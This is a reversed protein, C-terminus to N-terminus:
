LAKLINPFIVIKRHVKNRYMIDLVNHPIGSSPDELKTYSVAIVYALRACLQMRPEELETKILPMFFCKAQPIIM